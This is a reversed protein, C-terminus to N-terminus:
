FLKAILNSLGLYATVRLRTGERAHVIGQDDLSGEHHVRDQGQDPIINAANTEPHCHRDRTHAPDHGDEHQAIALAPIKLDSIRQFNHPIIIDFKTTRPFSVLLSNLEWKLFTPSFHSFFHSIYFIHLSIMWGHGGSCENTTKQNDLEVV